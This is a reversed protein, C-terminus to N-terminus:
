TGDRKKVSKAPGAHFVEDAPPLYARLKQRKIYWHPDRQYDELEMLVFTFGCEPCRHGDPLGVMSYGCHICFPEKRLRIAHHATNIAAGMPLGVLIVAAKWWWLVTLPFFLLFALLLVAPAFYIVRWGMLTLREGWTPLYWRAEPSESETQPHENM